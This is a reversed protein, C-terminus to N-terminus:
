PSEDSVCRGAECRINNHGPCDATAGECEVDEAAENVEEVEASNVPQECTCLGGGALACEGDGGCARSDEVLEVLEEPTTSTCGVALTLPIVCAVILASRM